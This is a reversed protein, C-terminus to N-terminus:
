LMNLDILPEYTCKVYNCLALDYDLKKKTDSLDEWSLVVYKGICTQKYYLAYMIVSVNKFNIMMTMVETVNM